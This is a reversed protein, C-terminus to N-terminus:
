KLNTMQSGLCPFLFQCSCELLLAPTPVSSGLQPALLADGSAHVVGATPTCVSHLFYM